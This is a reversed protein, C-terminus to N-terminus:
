FAAFLPIGHHEVSVAFLTVRLHRNQVYQHFAIVQDASATALAFDDIVTQRLRRGTIL